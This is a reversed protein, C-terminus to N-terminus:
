NKIIIKKNSLIQASKKLRIIYLGPHYDSIDIANQYKSQYILKGYVNIIEITLNNHQAINTKLKIHSDAPNPYIIFKTKDSLRNTIETKEPLDDGLVPRMMLAGPIQSQQWTGDYNYFLNKHSDRNLDFGVNLMVQHIQRWGIYFTGSVEIPEELYFPYYNNLGSYVPKYENNTEGGESFRSYLTDGPVGNDDNWVTLYFNKIFINTDYPYNFYMYIAILSDPKYSNFRYAVKGYQTGEGKLGYGAENTGDDYAYYNYFELTRSVTDNKKLYTLTDDTELYAKILFSASDAKDESDFNFSLETQFTKSELPEMFNFGQEFSYIETNTRLDTITYHPYVFPDDEGMLDQNYLNKYQYSTINKKQTNYAETQLYHQWPIAEFDKLISQTASTFGVDKYLTDNNKRDRNLMLYDIHWYDVSSRRGNIDDNGSISAINRIRFKFGDKFFISDLVPIFVPEFDTLDDGPIKLQTHWTLSDPDYFEIFLSDETEPKDAIGAPQYYFSLYISDDANYYGHEFPYKYYMTDKKDYYYLPDTYIHYDLDTNSYYYLTDDKQYQYNNTNIKQYSGDYYFLSDSLSLYNTDQKYFLNTGTVSSKYDGYYDYLNIRRSTLTDGGFFKKKTYAQDYIKGKRNLIDFTAVGITIPNVPYNNNIYVQDNEWLNPDPYTKNYAFDDFFPLNLSANKEKLSKLESKSTNAQLPNYGVNTIFEQAFGYNNFLLFFIIYSLKKVM